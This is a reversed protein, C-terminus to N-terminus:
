SILRELGYVLGVGDGTKRICMLVGPMFSSRSLTRHSITLSQGESGFCVDQNAIVGPLRVSHIPVSVTENAEEILQATKIATGSPADVKKEHHYEIIEVNPLYKAAQASFQMMLVAGIAFNPCVICRVNEKIALAELESLQETRLGTTGVVAHAGSSLITTVNDYVSDPLTMEVVVDAKHTKIAEALNDMRGLAAVLTMDKAEEVARVCETGMRGKAGNVIVRIV